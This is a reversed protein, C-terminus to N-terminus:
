GFGATRVRPARGDLLAATAHLVDGAPPPCGPLFLDVAVVEPVPLVRELLAPLAADRRPRGWGLALARPAAAAADRMATVNGWGACDGVAVLVRSRARAELLRPVDAETSCAGEVLCVDVHEPFREADAFPSAALQARAALELLAEDADLFSMHCGACGGLQVTALRAPETRTTAARGSGARPEPAARDPAAAVHALGQAGLAKELLAGTPCAAVCRGCGTCTPSSAWGGAGGDTVVRTARGRGVVALTGAREVEACVRVCRTCLVCRGPDLAFRPHSADIPPARRAVGLSVHDLGLAGALRQLECRGSAPCAACVHDGGAFLM